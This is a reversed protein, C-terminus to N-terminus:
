VTCSLCLVSDPGRPGLYTKVNENELLLTGIKKLHVSAFKLITGMLWTDMGLHRITYRMHVPWPCLNSYLSLDDKNTCWVQTAGVMPVSRCYDVYKLGMGVVKRDLTLNKLDYKHLCRPGRCTSITKQQLTM